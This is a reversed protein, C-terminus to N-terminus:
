KCLNLAASLEQMQGGTIAYFKGKFMLYRKDWNLFYRDKQGDFEIAARIDHNLLSKPGSSITKNIIDKATKIREPQRILTDRGFTQSWGVLVNDFNVDTLQITTNSKFPICKVRVNDPYSGSECSLLTM